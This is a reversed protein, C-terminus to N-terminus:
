MPRSLGSRPISICDCSGLLSVPVAPPKSSPGPPSHAIRRALDRAYPEFLVPGLRRDYVEAMSATFANDAEAM